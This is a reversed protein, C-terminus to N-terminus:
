IGSLRLDAQYAEVAIVALARMRAYKLAQLLRVVHLRRAVALVFVAALRRVDDAPQALPVIQGYVEEHAARLGIQGYERRRQARPLANNGGVRPVDGYM